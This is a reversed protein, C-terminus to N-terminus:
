QEIIRYYKETESVGYDTWTDTEGVPSMPGPQCTQQTSLLSIPSIKKMGNDHISKEQM